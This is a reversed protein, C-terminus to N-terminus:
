AAESLLPPKAAESLGPIKWLAQARRRRKVGRRPSYEDSESDDGRRRRRSFMSPSYDLGAADAAAYEEEMMLRAIAADGDDGDDM